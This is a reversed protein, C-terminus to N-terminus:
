DIKSKTTTQKEDRLSSKLGKFFSDNLGCFIREIKEFNAMAQSTKPLIEYNEKIVINNSFSCM